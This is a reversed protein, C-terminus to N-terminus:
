ESDEYFAYAHWCQLIQLLLYKTGSNGLYCIITDEYSKIADLVYQKTNEICGIMAAGEGFDIM